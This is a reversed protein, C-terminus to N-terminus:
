WGWDFSLAALRCSEWRVQAVLGTLGANQLWHTLFDCSLFGTYLLLFLISHHHIYIYINCNARTHTHADTHMQTCICVFICSHVIVALNWLNAKKKQMTEQRFKSLKLSLPKMLWLIGCCWLHFPSQWQSDDVRMTWTVMSRRAMEPSLVSAALVVSTWPLLELWSPCHSRQSSTSRLSHCNKHVRSAHRCGRMCCEFSFIGM